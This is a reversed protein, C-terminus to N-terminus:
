CDACTSQVGTAIAFSTFKRSQLLKRWRREMKDLNTYHRFRSRARGAIHPQEPDLEWPHLYIVAYQSESEARRIAWRTYATPLLRLYGGGAAPLTVGFCRASLPPYEIISRSDNVSLTHRYPFRRGEPIGYIDHHIPFISSDYTFGANFLIELAWLSKQTISWSPARYGYVADGVIDELVSKARVTDEEFEKPSLTYILRHWYSHCAIEHGRAATERVLQPFREAVWGLFFFTAKAQYADLVDLIRLTNREVRSPWSEWSSRRVVDAFAEVQFYDEVDVSMVHHRLKPDVNM